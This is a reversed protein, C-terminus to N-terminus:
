ERGCRPRAGTGRPGCGSRIRQLGVRGMEPPRALLRVIVLQRGPAETLQRDIAARREPDPRDIGSRDFQRMPNAAERGELLHVGYWLIFHFVILSVLLLAAEAGARGRRAM